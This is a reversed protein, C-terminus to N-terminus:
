KEDVREETLKTLDPVTIEEGHNTSFRLWYIFIFVLGAIIGVAIAIQGFFARSTIYEKFTMYNINACLYLIQLPMEKRFLIIFKNTGNVGEIIIFTAMIM